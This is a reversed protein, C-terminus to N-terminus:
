SPLPVLTGKRQLELRAPHIFSYSQKERNFLIFFEEPHGRVYSPDKLTERMRNFVDEISGFYKPKMGTRTLRYKPPFHEPYKSPVRLHGGEFRHLIYSLSVGGVNLHRVYCDRDVDYGETIIGKLRLRNVVMRIPNRTPVADYHRRLEHYPKILKYGQRRTAMDFVRLAQQTDKIAKNQAEKIKRSPKRLSKRIIRDLDSSSSSRDMTALSQMDM